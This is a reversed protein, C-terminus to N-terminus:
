SKALNRLAIRFRRAIEFASLRGSIGAADGSFGLHVHATDDPPEAVVRVEFRGDLIGPVELVECVFRTGAEWEVVRLRIAHAPDQNKRHSVFVVSGVSPAEGALAGAMHVPLWRDLNALDGVEAWVDSANRDEIVRDDRLVTLTM